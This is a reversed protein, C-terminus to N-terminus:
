RLILESIKAQLCSPIFRVLSVATKYLCGPVIVSHRNRMANLGAKAVKNSTMMVITRIGEVKHGAVEMFETLTGGPCLVTVNVNHPKWEQHLAKGFSLVFAKSAAYISFQPVPIYAAISSVLLVNGHRRKVMDNGFLWTLETLTDINVRMMASHTELPLTLFAGYLGLGANNLLLDIQLGLLQVQEYLTKAAGSVSLDLAIVQVKISFDRILENALAQLRDERRAVLVLNAGQAALQRAFSEGIGSSAGTVLATQGQFSQM